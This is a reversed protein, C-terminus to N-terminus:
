ICNWTSGRGTSKWSVNRKNNNNNRAYKPLEAIKIAHQNDLENRCGINYGLYNFNV